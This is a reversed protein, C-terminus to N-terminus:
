NSSLSHSQSINDIYENGSIPAIFIRTFLSRIRHITDSACVNNRYGNTLEAINGQPIDTVFPIDGGFNDEDACSPTKGTIINNEVEGITMACWEKPIERKLKENWVM